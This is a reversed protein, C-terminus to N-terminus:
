QACGGSFSTLVNAAAAVACKYNNGNSDTYSYQQGSTMGTNGIFNGSSDFELTDTHAGYNYLSSSFPSLGTSSVSAQDEQTIKTTQDESGDSNVVVSIDVVLPWAYTQNTTAITNGGIAQTATSRLTTGQSIDQQYKTATLAFNQTNTFNVSQSVTTLINGASTVANGSIVYSRASAVGVSGFVYGNPTTKLNETVTPSPAALTDSIIGGTVQTVKPDTYVLLNATDEFYGNANFVSISVTHPQGNSLLGAFPTLNVRYPVLNLTQVGPLPFWLFPDIGGTFIWPFVPAVGAPQGDITIETERFGTNSCSELETAVDSPVCTYWFEDGSQGQSWVDLYAASVNTPLTFTGALTDTSTNLTVTGGSPGASLPFVATATTPAPRNAALPYFEIDASAFIISTLGCCLTNGISAVGSQATTFISSYDTLDQEVHWSPGIASPEATTGFYINYPGLWYNATRDYQIGAQVSIDSELVVKAWPGPCAAPPTYTYDENNFDYFQANSFLQVVCPTTSPRTVLPDATVTNASGVQYPGSAFTFPVLVALFLFLFVLKCFKPASGRMPFVEQAFNPYFGRRDHKVTSQL